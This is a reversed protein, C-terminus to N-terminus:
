IFENEHVFRVRNAIRLIKMDIHTAISIGVNYVAKLQINNILSKSLNAATFKTYIWCRMILHDFPRILLKVVYM